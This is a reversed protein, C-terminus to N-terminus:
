AADVTCVSNEPGVSSKENLNKVIEREEESIIVSPSTPIKLESLEKQLNTILLKERFNLISNNAEIIKDLVTKCSDEEVDNSQNECHTLKIALDYIDETLLEDALIREYLKNVLDFGTQLKWGSFLM